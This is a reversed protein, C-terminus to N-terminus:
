LSLPNLVVQKEQFALYAIEDFLGLQLCFTADQQLGLRIMRQYHDAQELLSMPEAECSQWLTLMARASDNMPKLQTRALLAQMLAGGFLSDELSYTDNWGAALVLLRINNKTSLYDALSYLNVFAGVLVNSTLQSAALLAKTGNTTTFYVDKGGVLESSYELPSNGHRAFLCRQGGREAGVIAGSKAIKEAEELSALPFVHAAGNHFMSLITTSARWVDVVVITDIDQYLPLLRPSLCVDYEIM